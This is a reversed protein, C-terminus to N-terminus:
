APVLNKDEVNIFTPRVLLDNVTTERFTRETYEMTQNLRSHMECLQNKHHPLNMPCRTVRRLPDVTQVIEYVTLVHPDAVLSFGGGLGRQSSVIDQRALSQMVKSLYGAPIHTAKAIQQITQAEGREALYVIARLAYEATQSIM